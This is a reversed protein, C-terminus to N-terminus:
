SPNELAPSIEPKNKLKGYYDVWYRPIKIRATQNNTQGAGLFLEIQILFPCTWKPLKSYLAPRFFRSLGSTPRLHYAAHNM